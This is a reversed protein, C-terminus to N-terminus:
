HGHAKQYNKANHSQQCTKRNCRRKRQTNRRRKIYAVTVTKLNMTADASASNLAEPLSKKREGTPRGGEFYHMFLLRLESIVARAADEDRPLQMGYVCRDSAGCVCEGGNQVVRELCAITDIAETKSRFQCMMAM